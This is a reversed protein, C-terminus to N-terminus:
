HSCPFSPEKASPTGLHRGNKGELPTSPSLSMMDTRGDYKDLYKRLQHPSENRQVGEPPVSPGFWFSLRQPEKFRESTNESTSAGQRPTELGQLVQPDM